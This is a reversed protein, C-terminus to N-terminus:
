RYVESCLKPGILTLVYYLVVYAPITINDINVLALPFLSM